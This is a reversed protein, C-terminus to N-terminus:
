KSRRRIEEEIGRHRLGTEIGPVQTCFSSPCEWPQGPESGTATKGRYPLCHRCHHKQTKGEDAENALSTSLPLGKPAYPFHPWVRGYHEEQNRVAEKANLNQGPSQLVFRLTWVRPSRKVSSDKPHQEYCWNCQATFGCYKRGPQVQFTASTQPDASSLCWKQRNKELKQKLKPSIRAVVAYDQTTLM